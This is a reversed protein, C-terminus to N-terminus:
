RHPVVRFFFVQIFVIAQQQVNVNKNIIKYYMKHKKKKKEVANKNQNIFVVNFAASCSAICKTFGNATAM